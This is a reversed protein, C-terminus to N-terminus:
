ASAQKNVPACARVFLDICRRQHSRREERNAWDRGAPGMGGFLLDMLMRAGSSTDDLSLRGREVQSGLWDALGQRSRVLGERHLIEGLEPADAAERIVFTIFAERHRETEEDIDILFIKELVIDPAADEDAPRPLDLMMRRHDGVVALFLDAKSSFLRYITQKSIRCRSAVVDTTTGRYGLEIFTHRAVDIIIKRREDDSHAKPRGRPRRTDQDAAISDPEEM